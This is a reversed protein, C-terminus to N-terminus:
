GYLPVEDEKLIREVAAANVYHTAQAALKDLIVSLTDINGLQQTLLELSQKLLM